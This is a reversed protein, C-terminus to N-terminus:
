VERVAKKWEDVSFLGYVTAGQIAVPIQRELERASHRAELERADHHAELEHAGHHVDLEHVGNSVEHVGNPLEHVGNPLEHVGNPLQHTGNPLQNTGNSVQNVDVDRSAAAETQKVVEYIHNISKFFAEATRRDGNRLAQMMVREGRPLYARAKRAKDVLIRDIDRLFAKAEASELTKETWHRQIEGGFNRIFLHWKRSLILKLPVDPTKQLEMDILLFMLYPDEGYMVGITGLSLWYVLHWIDPCLDRNEASSDNLPEGLPSLTLINQDPAPNSLRPIGVPGNFRASPGLPRGLGFMFPM